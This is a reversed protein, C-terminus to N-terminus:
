DRGLLFNMAKRYPAAMPHDELAERSVWVEGDRADMSKGSYVFLRVRYRTITYSLEYLFEADGIEEADRLPLRWLGGRRKGSECRLLIDGRENEIFVVREELSTIMTLKAKVPLLQPDRSRCFVAVPCALCDPVGVKCIRQGLEMLASNFLRPHEHDLLEEARRWQEKIGPTSDIPTPDDYLRALVRMVNGDVLASPLDFAFSRLAGATYRGIGPLAMLEDIVCPFKGGHRECVAQATAQLMRARRYYGLGEWVRLLVAEEAAALDQVRPFKEIFRQYYGKGLVVSLRTQQLMVESVLIAYPDSTRRWPYDRGEERFWALLAARFAEVDKHLNRSAIPKLVAGDHSM